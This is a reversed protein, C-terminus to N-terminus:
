PPFKLVQLGSTPMDDTTGGRLPIAKQIWAELYTEFANEYKIEQVKIKAKTAPDVQPSYKMGDVRLGHHLEIAELPRRERWWNLILTKRFFISKSPKPHRVVGHYLDGQFAIFKNTEPWVFAVKSPIRPLLGFQNFTQNFIVTPGAGGTLYFISSVDPCIRLNHQQLLVTDTDTHYEKPSEDHRAQVFWDVGLFESEPDVLKRVQMVTKEIPNRPESGDVFM